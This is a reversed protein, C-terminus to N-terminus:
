RRRSVYNWLGTVCRERSGGCRCIPHGYLILHSGAIDQSSQDYLVELPTISAPSTASIQISSSFVTFLCSNMLLLELAFVEHLCQLLSNGRFLSISMQYKYHSHKFCHQLKTGLETIHLFLIKLVILSIHIGTSVM